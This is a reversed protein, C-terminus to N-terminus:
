EVQGKASLFTAKAANWAVVFAALAAAGGDMPVTASQAAALAADIVTTLETGKVMPSVALRGVKVLTGEIVTGTLDTPPVIPNTDAHLGPQFVSDALMHTLALVPDAAVGLLLWQGLARDHVHLEGTDGPMLPFTIYGTNTRPWAVPLDVLQLPQLTAEADPPVGKMALMRLPPKTADSVKVVELRGVDVTVKQRAPDYAVVTAPAHTHISLKLSQMVSRLLDSTDPESTLDYPGVARNERGM